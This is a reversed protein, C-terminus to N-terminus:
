QKTELCEEAQPIHIKKIHVEVEYLAGGYRLTMEIVSIERAKAEDGLSATFLARQAFEAISTTHPDAATPFM